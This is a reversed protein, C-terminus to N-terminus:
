HLSAETVPSAGRGAPFAPPHPLAEYVGPDFRRTRRRYEVHSGFWVTTVRGSDTTYWGPCGTTFVTKLLREQAEVNFASHFEQRIDLAVEHSGVYEIAQRMYAAQYELM